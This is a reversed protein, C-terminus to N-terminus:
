IHRGELLLAMTELQSNLSKVKDLIGGSTSASSVSETVSRLLFELGEDESAENREIEQEVRRAAESLTWKRRNAEECEWHQRRVGDCQLAIQERQKRIELYEIQLSAKERRTKRVRAGLAIRHEVAQSMTFLENDLDKGFAVLATRKKTATAKESRKTTDDVREIMKHITERCIQALIDVVNPQKPIADSNSLPDAFSLDEDEENITSLTSVGTLKHTLIPFTAKGRKRGSPEASRSSSRQARPQKRTKKSPAPTEPELESDEVYSEDGDEPEQPTRERDTFPSAPQTRKSALKSYKSIRNALPLLSSSPESSPHCSSPLIASTEEAGTGGPIQTSSRGKRRGLSLPKRRWPRSQRTTSPAESVHLSPSELVTRPTANNESQSSEESEVTTDGPFMSPDLLIRGSKTTQLDSVHADSKSDSILPTDNEKQQDRRPVFLPSTPPQDKAQDAHRAEVADEDEAIAFM